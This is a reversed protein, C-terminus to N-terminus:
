DTACQGNFYVNVPLNGLREEETCLLPNGSMYINTGSMAM